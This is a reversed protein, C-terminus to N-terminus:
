DEHLTMKERVVEALFILVTHYAAPRVFRNRHHFRDEYFSLWWRLGAMLNTVNEYNNLYVCEYKLSRWLREVFINDSARGRGDM